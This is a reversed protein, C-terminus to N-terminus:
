DELELIHSRRVEESKVGGGRALDNQVNKCFSHEGEGRAEATGGDGETPYREKMEADNREADGTVASYKSDKKENVDYKRDNTKKRMLDRKVERRGFDMSTSSRGTTAGQTAFMISIEM